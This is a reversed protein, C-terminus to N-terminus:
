WFAKLALIALIEEETLKSLVFWSKGDRRTGPLRFVCKISEHDASLLYKESCYKIDIIKFLNKDINKHTIGSDHVKQSVIQSLKNKDMNM